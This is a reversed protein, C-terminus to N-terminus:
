GKFAFKKEIVDAILEVLNEVLEHRHHPYWIAHINLGLLQSEKKLKEVQTAPEELVAYHNPVKFGGEIKTATFLKM